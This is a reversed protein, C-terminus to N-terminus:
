KRVRLRSTMPGMKPTREREHLRSLTFNVEKEDLLHHSRENNSLRFAYKEAVARFDEETLRVRIAPSCLSREESQALRGRCKLNIHVVLDAIVFVM